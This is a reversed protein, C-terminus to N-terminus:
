PTVTVKKGLPWRRKALLYGRILAQAPAEFYRYTFFSALLTAGVFAAFFLDDNLPIPRRLIAFGIVIVLQIPFQLLYSSYTMSGAAELLRQWPPSLPVNGSLCFLLIFMSLLVIVYSPVTQRSYIWLCAAIGVATCWAAAEIPLQFHSRATAQRGIAALGGVYFCGFCFGIPSTLNTSIAIVLVNLLVSRTVFRLALFFAAYVLMETSVSWIPGNFSLVPNPDWNSAMFLQLVFNQIDNHSYIFFSGQLHHYIPQLSAVLMLTVVHLPYLRSLRFVFFERGGIARDSIADRYKWFFIFGSIAWFVCVGFNGAEYFPFLLSYFPLQTKAFDAPMGAAYAFHKHHWTLVAFAAVFRLAELGLLKNARPATLTENMIGATKDVSGYRNVAL